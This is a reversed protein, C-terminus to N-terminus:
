GVLADYIVACEGRDPAGLHTKEGPTVAIVGPSGGPPTEGLVLETVPQCHLVGHWEEGHLKGSLAPQGPEETFSLSDASASSAVMVALTLAALCIFIAAQKLNM